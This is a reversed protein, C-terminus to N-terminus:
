HLLMITDYSVFELCGTKSELNDMASRIKSRDTSGVSPSITYPVIVFGSRRDKWRFDPVMNLSRHQQVASATSSAEDDGGDHPEVTKFEM